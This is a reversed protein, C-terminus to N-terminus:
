AANRTLHQRYEGRAVGTPAVFTLAGTRVSARWSRSRVTSSLLCWATTLGDSLNYGSGGGQPDRFWYQIYWVTGPTIPSAYSADLDFDYSLSGAPSSRVVPLRKIGGGVCLVGDGFPRNTPTSSYFFLGAEEPPLGSAILTLDNASVSTSGNYTIRAGPGM